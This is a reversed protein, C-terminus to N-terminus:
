SKQENKSSDLVNRVSEALDTRNVPKMIFARIGLSKAKEENMMESFGTCLIIPMDPQITLIQKALEAGTMNPMTMDTIVLDFNGPRKQFEHLTEMSNTFATVEYGLYELMKRSLQVISPDDDVILIRENGIPVPGILGEQIEEVQAEVIPLYIEFSTGQGQESYVSIDGQLRTVIGHVVAMGLGTGEGKGKTTFYPEFIRDQVDKTMGIGTDAIELILYSGPELHIKKGFAKETLKIPQLSINLVGGAERMAQYANTCVNMILQHIETPDALVTECDPNINQRIEITTPISSRLLKLVENIVFQIRIPKLNQDSKRSFTLIQKVLEKARNAGQLIENLDKRLSEPNDIDIMALETYGMVASLINNFDHAIGGALTGISELKQAQHLKTELIMREELALKRETIDESISLLFLPEGNENFIPIKKTHLTRIGKDKTQIPEEPIDFLMKSALVEQDKATFFDADKQPFFDYDNKGILSERSYGLLGEGARNLRVFRLNKADKVFIMNPINDIVSNLFSENAKLNKEVQEREAIEASLHKTRESVDKNLKRNYILLTIASITIVTVVSLLIWVMRMVKTYDPQSNPDYLFGDLSFDPDLMGLKVFTDGIHNWRGPNMHGIEILKPLMLQKIKDFEYRMYTLTSKSGYKERIIEMLEEPNDMAYAWGLLSAERFASVRDPHESLEKESTFLCDGYFDIGYNIPYLIKSEIGAKELSLPQDTVYAHIADVKGDILDNINWSLKLFKIQELSINENILMARLEAASDFRWMVKKGILNHPSKIGSDARALIIQPSHQFIAALVVVPKGKHRALLLEPMEVGYNARESIVEEVFDMGPQGEKITVELGAERYFGKEVAAYYGAFNFQHTWKLQLIVRDFKRNFAAPQKADSASISIFSFILSYCLISFINTFSLRRPFPIPM